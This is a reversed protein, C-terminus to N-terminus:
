HLIRTGDERLDRGGSRDMCRIDRPKRRYCITHLEHLAYWQKDRPFLLDIGDQNNYPMPPEMGDRHVTRQAHIRRQRSEAYQLFARQCLCEYETPLRLGDRHRKGREVGEQKWQIGLLFGNDNDRKSAHVPPIGVFQEASRHPCPCADHQGLKHCKTPGSPPPRAAAMRPGLPYSCEERIDLYAGRGDWRRKRRSLQAPRSSRIRDNMRVM